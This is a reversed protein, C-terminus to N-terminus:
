DCDVALRHKGCVVCRFLYGRLSGYELDNELEEQTLNYDRKVKDLDEKLDDALEEIESWGVYGVFTCFDGCHSLWM